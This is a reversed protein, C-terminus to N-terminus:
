LFSSLSDFAEPFFVLWSFFTTDALAGSTFQGFYTKFLVPYTTRAMTLITLKHIVTVFGPLFLGILQQAPQKHLATLVVCNKCGM